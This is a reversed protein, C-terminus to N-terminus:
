NVLFTKCDCKMSTERLVSAFVVVTIDGQRVVEFLGKTTMATM